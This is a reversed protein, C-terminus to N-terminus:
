HLINELKEKLRTCFILIPLSLDMNAVSDRLEDLIEKETLMKLM